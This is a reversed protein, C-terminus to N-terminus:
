RRLFIAVRKRARVHLQNEQEFKLVEFGGAVGEVGTEIHDEGNAGKVTELRAHVIFFLINQAPSYM